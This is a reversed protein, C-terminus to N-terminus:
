QIERNIEKDLYESFIRAGIYNLHTIDSYCSDPLQFTSMDLLSDGPLSNRVNLWNTRIEENVQDSYSRHKPTNFLILRVNKQRCLQSIMGLYKEQLLGKEVPQLDRQQKFLSDQLRIDEKLKNRLSSSYGGFAPLRDHPGQNRISKAFTLLNIFVSQTLGTLYAEPNREMILVKDSKDLLYNYNKIKEILYADKFLLPEQKEKLIEHYSFGVLVTKINNNYELLSKLKAYTYLYAEGSQAINISNRVIADDVSYEVSSDGALITKINARLKLIVEKREKVLFESLLIFGAVTTFALLFFWLARILFRKM